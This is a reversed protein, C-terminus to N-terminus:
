EGAIEKMDVCWTPVEAQRDCCCAWDEQYWGKQVCEVFSSFPWDHPCRVHGHKVPNYHIYDLIRGLEEEDRVTHEWFRRQWVGREARRIRVHSRGTEKGGGALWAKTFRGKIMKWRMSYDSDNEPLRWLCHLHDPLLVMAINEFPKVVKVSRLVDGLLRRAAPSKFLPKRFNTVVTFFFTGGPQFSREYQPM